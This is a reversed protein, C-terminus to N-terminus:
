KKKQSDDRLIIIGSSSKKKNNDESKFKDILSSAASERYFKITEHKCGFLFISFSIIVLTIIFTNLKKNM